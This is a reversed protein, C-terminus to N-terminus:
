LGAFGTPLAFEFAVVDNGDAAPTDLPSTDVLADVM